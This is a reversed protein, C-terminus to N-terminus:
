KCIKPSKCVHLNKTHSSAGPKDRVQQFIFMQEQNQEKRRVGGGLGGVNREHLRLPFM